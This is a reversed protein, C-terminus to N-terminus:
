DADEITNGEAVWKLVEQYDTNEKNLPIWSSDTKRFILAPSLINGDSDKVEKIHKYM